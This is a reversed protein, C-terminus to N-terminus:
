LVGDFEGAERGIRRTRKRPCDKGTKNDLGMLGRRAKKKEWFNTRPGRELFFVTAEGAGGGGKKCTGGAGGDRQRAGKRRGRRKRKGQSAVEGTLRKSGREGSISRDFIEEEDHQNRGWDGSEV